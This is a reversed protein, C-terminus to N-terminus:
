RDLEQEPWCAEYHQMMRHLDAEAKDVAEQRRQALELDRTLCGVEIAKMKGMTYLLDEALQRIDKQRDEMMERARQM